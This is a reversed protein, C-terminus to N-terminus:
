PIFIFFNNINKHTTIINKEIAPQGESLEEVVRPLDLKEEFVTVESVVGSVLSLVTEGTGSGADSISSPEPKTPRAAKARLLNLFYFLRGKQIAGLL